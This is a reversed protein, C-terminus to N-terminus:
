IDQHNRLSLFLFVDGDPFDLPKLLYISIHFYYRLRPLNPPGVELGLDQSMIVNSVYIVPSIRYRYAYLLNFLHSLIHCFLIRELAM